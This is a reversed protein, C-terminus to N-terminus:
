VDEADADAAALARSIIGEQAGPPGRGLKAKAGIAVLSHHPPECKHHDHLNITIRKISSNFARHVKCHGVDLAAM